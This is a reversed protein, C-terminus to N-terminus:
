EKATALAPGDSAEDSVTESVRGVPTVKTDAVPVPQVQLLVPLTETEHVRGVSAVPVEAGVMVTTTVAGAWPAVKDLTAETADAVVSGFAALLEEVTEVVTVADASRAIM